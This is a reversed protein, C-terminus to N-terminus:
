RGVDQAPMAPSPIAATKAPPRPTLQPRANEPPQAALFSNVIVTQEPGLLGFDLPNETLVQLAGDRDGSMLKASFLGYIAQQKETIDPRDLVQQLSEAAVRANDLRADGRQGGAIELHAMGLLYLADEQREVPVKVSRLLAIRTAPSPEVRATDIVSSAVVDLTEESRTDVRQHEDGLRSIRKAALKRVRRESCAELQKKIEPADRLFRVLREREKDSLGDGASFSPSIVEVKKGWGLSAEVYGQYLSWPDFTRRQMNVAGNTFTWRVGDVIARDDLFKKFFGRPLHDPGPLRSAWWRAQRILEVDPQVREADLEQIRELVESPSSGELALTQDARREDVDVDDAM